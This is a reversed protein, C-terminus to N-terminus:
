AGGHPACTTWALQRTCLGDRSGQVNAPELLLGPRHQRAEIPICIRTYVILTCLLTHPLPSANKSVLSSSSCRYAAQAVAASTMATCFSNRCAVLARLSPVHRTMTSQYVNTSYLCLRRPPSCGSPAVQVAHVEWRRATLVFPGLLPHCPSIFRSPFLLWLFIM